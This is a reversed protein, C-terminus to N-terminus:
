PITARYALWSPPDTAFITDKAAVPKPGTPSLFNFLDEKLHDPTRITPLEAAQGSGSDVAAHLLAASTLALEAKRRAGRGEKAGEKGVRRSRFCATASGVSIETLPHEAALAQQAAAILHENGPTIAPELDPHSIFAQVISPDHESLWQSLHPWLQEPHLM